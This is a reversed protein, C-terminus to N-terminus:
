EDVTRVLEQRLTMDQTQTEQKKSKKQKRRKYKYNYTQNVRDNCHTTLVEHMQVFVIKYVDLTKIIKLLLPLGGGGGTRM